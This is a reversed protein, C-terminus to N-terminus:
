LRAGRALQAFRQAIQLLGLDARFQLLGGVIDAAASRGVDRRAFLAYRAGKSLEPVSQLRGLPGGAFAAALAFAGVQFARERVHLFQAPLQFFGGTQAILGALLAATLLLGLLTLLPLLALLWTLLRALAATLLSLLTLPPLTLLALTLLALPLLGRLGARLGALLGASLLRTLLPLLPLLGALSLM